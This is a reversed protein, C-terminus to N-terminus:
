WIIIHVELQDDIADLCETERSIPDPQHASVLDVSLDGLSTDALNQTRHPLNLCQQLPLALHPLDLLPLHGNHVHDLPFSLITFEPKDPLLM